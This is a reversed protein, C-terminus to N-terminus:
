AGSGATREVIRGDGRQPSVRRAGALPEQHSGCGGSARDPRLTGGGGGGARGGGRQPGGALTEGWRPRDWWADGLRLRRTLGWWCTVRGPRRGGRDLTGGARCALLSWLRPLVRLRRLPLSGRLLGLGRLPRCSRRRAGLPGHRHGRGCGRGLLVLCGPRLSWRRFPYRGRRGRARLGPRLLRLTSRGAFLPRPLFAFDLPVRRLLFLRRLNFASMSVLSLYTAGATEGSRASRTNVSGSRLGPIGRSRSRTRARRMLRLATSRRAAVMGVRRVTLFSHCAAQSKRAIVQMSRVVSWPSSVGVLTSRSHALAFLGTRGSRSSASPAVSM